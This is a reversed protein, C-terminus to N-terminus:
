LTNKVSSNYCFHAMKAKITVYQQLPLGTDRM